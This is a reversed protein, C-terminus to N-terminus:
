IFVVDMPDIPIVLGIGSDPTFYWTALLETIGPMCPTHAIIVGAEGSFQLVFKSSYALPKSIMVRVRRNVISNLQCSTPISPYGFVDDQNM